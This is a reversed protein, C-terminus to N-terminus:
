RLVNLINDLSQSVMKHQVRSTTSDEAIALRLQVLLTTAFATKLANM